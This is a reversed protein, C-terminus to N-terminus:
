RSRTRVRELAQARPRQGRAPVDGAGGEADELRADVKGLEYFLDGLSTFMGILARELSAQGEPTRLTEAIDSDLAAIRGGLEAQRRRLNAIKRQSM